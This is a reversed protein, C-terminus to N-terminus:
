EKWALSGKYLEIETKIDEAISLLKLWQGPYLTVPYRSLGYVSVNGKNEQGQGDTGGLPKVKISLRNSAQKAARAKLADNQTRLEAIQALLASESGVDQLITM